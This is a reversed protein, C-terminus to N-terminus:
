SKKQMIRVISIGAILVWFVSVVVSPFAGFYWSNVLVLAGGLLNLLQYSMADSKMYKFSNLLFAIIIFASGTYGLLNLILELPSTM